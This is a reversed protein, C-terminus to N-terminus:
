RSDLGALVGAVDLRRQEADLAGEVGGAPPQRHRDRRGDLGGAGHEGALVGLREGDREGVGVQEVDAQVAGGARVQHGVV